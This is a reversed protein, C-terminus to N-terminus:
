KQSQSLPSTYIWHWLVIGTAVSINLSHKTGFQPIEVVADCVELVEKQVGDVENGLVFVSEQFTTQQLEISQKTQEVGYCTYGEQRLSLVVTKAQEVHEWAVSETSGLATKYIEKHPPTPTYGCLWIKEIAFADATRFIAGVNLASRVNDLVLHVKHKSLQKFEELTSRQLQNLSLKEIEM